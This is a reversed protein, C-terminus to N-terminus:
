SLAKRGQGKGPGSGQTQGGGEKGQEEYGQMRARIHPVLVRDLQGVAKSFKYVNWPLYRGISRMCHVCGCMRIGHEYTFYAAISYKYM